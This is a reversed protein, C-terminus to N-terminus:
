SRLWLPVLGLSLYLTLTWLGTLSEIRKGLLNGRLYGPMMLLAIMLAIDLAGVVPLDFHCSFATAKQRHL